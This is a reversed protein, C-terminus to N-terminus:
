GTLQAHIFASVDHHLKARAASNVYMMHGGEYTKTLIRGSYSFGLHHMTYFSGFFPTALDYLGQADLVKLRPNKDLALRLPNSQDLGGPLGTGWNWAGNAQFNLPIYQLDSKFGLENRMYDEFATIIPPSIAVDAADFDPQDGVGFVDKGLVRADNRGITHGEKRLLEKEFQGPGVRFLSLEWYGPSLGSFKSLKNALATREEQTLQDGKALDTWYEGIAFNESDQIAKVPDANYESSLKHHFAAIATYSPLYAMYPLENGNADMFINFNVASSILVIGSLAIGREHLMDSLGAARPTGYSEGALFIPATRRNTMRLYNWIFDSMATLDGDVGWYKSSQAKDPRSYGTGVPDVFVLDTDPLWTEENDEVGYPPRPMSGDSNLKARRPSMCGMHVWISSSGPGGNWCFTIPRARDGATMYATFSMKAQVDGKEDKLPVFGAIATYPLAGTITKVTHKSEVWSPDPLAGAVQSGIFAIAVCPIM